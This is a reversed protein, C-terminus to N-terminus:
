LWRYERGHPGRRKLGAVAQGTWRMSGTEWVREETVNRRRGVLSLVRSKFAWTILNPRGPYNLNIDKIKIIDAFEGKGYLMDYGFTEFIPAHGDKSAM